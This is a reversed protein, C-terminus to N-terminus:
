SNLVYLDIFRDTVEPVGIAFAIFCGVALDGVEGPGSFEIAVAVFFACSLKRNGGM